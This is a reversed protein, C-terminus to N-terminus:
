ECKIPESKESAPKPKEVTVDSFNQYNQFDSVCDVLEMRYLIKTQTLGFNFHLIIKYSPSLKLFIKFFFISPIGFFTSIDAHDETSKNSSQTEKVIMHNDRQFFLAPITMM